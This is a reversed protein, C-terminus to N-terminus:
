KVLEDAKKEIMEILETIEQETSQIFIWNPTKHNLEVEVVKELHDIRKTLTSFELETM